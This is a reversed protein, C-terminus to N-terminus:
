EVEHATYDVPDSQFEERDGSSETVEQAEEWVTEKELTPFSDVCRIFWDALDRCYAVWKKAKEKEYKM